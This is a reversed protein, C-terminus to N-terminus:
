FYTSQNISKLYQEIDPQLDPNKSGIIALKEIHKALAKETNIKPASALWNIFKPSTFLKATIYAGGIAKGAAIAGPIGGVLGGAGLATLNQM